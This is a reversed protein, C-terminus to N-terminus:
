LGFFSSRALGEVARAMDVWATERVSVDPRARIFPKERQMTSLRGSQRGCRLARSTNTNTALSPYIVVARLVLAGDIRVRRGIRVRINNRIMTSQVKGMDDRVRRVFGAFGIQEEAAEHPFRLM